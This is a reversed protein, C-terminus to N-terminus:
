EKVEEGKKESESGEDKNEEVKPTEEKPQEALKGLANGYAVAKGLIFKITDGCIYGRDVSFSLASRFFSKLESLISEKDVSIDFYVKNEKSDFAAIPVFGISFPKIDLKGMVDAAASSIKEGKRLITKSEKISIKGKDIQIKIGLAGLETIAPGPMLETPGADVVIDEPAIQGAKARVSTKKELLEVSIDFADDDSFLIATSDGVKDRLEKLGEKDSSDLARSIISKKPVKVVAKSRFRKVLEQYQSAPIGKISVLLVTNKEKILGELESVQKMKRDSVHAETTKGPNM